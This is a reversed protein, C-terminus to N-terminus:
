PRAATRVGGGNGTGPTPVEYGPNPVFTDDGGPIHSGTGTGTGTGSGSSGTVGGITHGTFAPPVLIRGIGPIVVSHDSKLFWEPQKM